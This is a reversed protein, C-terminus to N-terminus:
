GNQKFKVKPFHVIKLREESHSSSGDAICVDAVSVHAVLVLNMHLCSCDRSRLSLVALDSMWLRESPKWVGECLQDHCASGLGVLPMDEPIGLGRM